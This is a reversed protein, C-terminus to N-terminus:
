EVAGTWNTVHPQGTIRQLDAPLGDACRDLANRELRAEIEILFVLAAEASRNGAHAESVAIEMMLTRHLHQHGARHRPRTRQMRWLPGARYFHGRPDLGRLDLAGPDLRNFGLGSGLRCFRFASRLQPARGVSRVRRKRPGRM